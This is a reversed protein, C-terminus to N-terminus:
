QNKDRTLRLPNTDMQWLRKLSEDNFCIMKGTADDTNLGLIKYVTQAQIPSLNIEVNRGDPYYFTLGIDLTKNM